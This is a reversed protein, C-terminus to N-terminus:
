PRIRVLSKHNIGGESDYIKKKAILTSLVLMVYNNKFNATGPRKKTKKIKEFLRFLKSLFIIHFIDMRHQYEFGRGRSSSDEGMVM